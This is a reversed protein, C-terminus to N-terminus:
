LENIHVMCGIPFCFHSCKLCPNTLDDDDGNCTSSYDLKDSIEYNWINLKGKAPIFKDLPEIDKLVWAYRGETYDGFYIDNPAFEYGLETLDKFINETIPICDVLTAKAIIKGLPLQSAFIIDHNEFTSRFLTSYFIEKSSTSLKGSSHIYLEGRYKTKWSRTEILKQKYYILSAWPQMLTIVKM